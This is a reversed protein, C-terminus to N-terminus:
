SQAEHDFLKTTTAIANNLNEITGGAQGAALGVLFTTIPAAPRMVSHAADAALDLIDSIDFDVEIGLAAALKGAWADLQEESM